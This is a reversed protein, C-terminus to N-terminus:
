GKKSNMQERDLKYGDTFRPYAWIALIVSFILSIVGVFVLKGSIIFYLGELIGFLIFALCGVGPSHKAVLVIEDLINTKFKEFGMDAYQEAKNRAGNQWDSFETTPLESNFLIKDYALRRHQDSLIEYAENILVFMEHANKSSNRDPHWEMALTRYSKKIETETALRSLSLISYYDKM